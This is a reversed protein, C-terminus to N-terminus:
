FLHTLNRERHFSLCHQIDIGDMQIGKKFSQSSVHDKQVEEFVPLCHYICMEQQICNFDLRQSESVLNRGICTRDDVICVMRKFLFRIFLRVARTRPVLQFLALVDTVPPEAAVLRGM